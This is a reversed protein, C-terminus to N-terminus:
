HPATKQWHRFASNHTLPLVPRHLHPLLPDEFINYYESDSTTSSSTSASASGGGGSGGIFAFILSVLVAKWYNMNLIEKARAKLESRSWM